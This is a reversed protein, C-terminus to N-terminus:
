AITEDLGVERHGKERRLLVRDRSMFSSVRNTSARAVLIRVYTYRGCFYVSEFIM